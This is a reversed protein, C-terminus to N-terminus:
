NNISLHSAMVEVSKELSLFNALEKLGRNQEFEPNVATLMGMALSDSDIETVIGAHFKSVLSGMDGACTTVLNRAFLAAEGLILPISDQRSPIVVCSANSITAPLLEKSITGRLEVKGELGLDEILLQYEEKCPGSGYIHLSGITPLEKVVISYAQILLDIGKHFHLRAVAVFSPNPILHSLTGLADSDRWNRSSPLFIADISYRSKALDILNFGDAYVIEANSLIVRNIANGFPYRDADLVDSGLLWVSYPKGLIFHPLLAFIGSPISWFCLIHDWDNKLSIFFSKTVGILLYKLLKFKGSITSSDIDTLNNSGYGRYISYTNISLDSAPFSALVDIEFGCDILSISFDYVFAGANESLNIKQPFSSTIVGIKKLM